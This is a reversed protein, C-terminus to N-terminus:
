AKKLLSKELLDQFSTLGIPQYKMILECAKIAGEAFLKRDLAEHSLKIKEAGTSLTLEHYGIVDGTREATIHVSRNLWEKMSLATGSPSDLKKTHHIEHLHFESSSYLESLESLDKIMKKLIFVGLSFNTAWVWSLGKQKLEEHFNEPWEFGTSGTVVPKKTELLLPIHQKFAEGPLFSLIVDCNVLEHHTPSKQSDFITLPYPSVDIVKSGTKGKGLLAIKM